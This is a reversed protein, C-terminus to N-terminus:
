SLILSIGLSHFDKWLQGVVESVELAIQVFFSIFVASLLVVIEERMYEAFYFM